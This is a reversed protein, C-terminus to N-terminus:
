AISGIRGTSDCRVPIMTLGSVACLLVLAVSRDSEVNGVATGSTGFFTGSIPLYMNNVTM